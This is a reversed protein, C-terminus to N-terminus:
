GGREASESLRMMLAMNVTHEVAHGLALLGLALTITLVVKM